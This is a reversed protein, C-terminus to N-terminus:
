RQHIEQGSSAGRARSVTGRCGAVTFRPRGTSSGGCRGLTTIATTGAGGTDATMTGTRVAITLRPFKDGRRTHRWVHEYLGIVKVDDFRTPDDLLVRRGKALDATNATTWSVVLAEALRAVTLHQCVLGVLAWRLVTRSLKAARVHRHTPEVPRSTAPGARGEWPNDAAVTLIRDRRLLGGHM